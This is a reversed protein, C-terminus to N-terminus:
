QLRQNMFHVARILDKVVHVTEPNTIQAPDKALYDRLHQLHNSVEAPLADVYAPDEEDAVPKDTWQYTDTSDVPVYWSDADGVEIAVPRSLHEMTEGDRPGGSFTYTTM